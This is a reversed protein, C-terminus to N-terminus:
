RSDILDVDLLHLRLHHHRHRIYSSWGGEEPCETCSLPLARGPQELYSSSNAAESLWRPPSEVFGVGGAELLEAMTGAGDYDPVELTEALVARDVDAPPRGEKKATRELREYLGILDRPASSYHTVRVGRADGGQRLWVILTDVERLIPPAGPAPEPARYIPKLESIAARAVAAWLGDAMPPSLSARLWTRISGDEITVLELSAQDLSVYTHTTEFERYLTIYSQITESRGGQDANSCSMAGIPMAVLVMTICLASLFKTNNMPLWLKM